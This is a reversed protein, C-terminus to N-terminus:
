SFVFQIYNLEELEKLIKRTEEESDSSANLIEDVEIFSADKSKSLLFMLLGKAELTLKSDNILDNHVYMHEKNHIVEGQNMVRIYM